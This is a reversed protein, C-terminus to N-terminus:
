DLSILKRNLHQQHGAAQNHALPSLAQATHCRPMASYLSAVTSHMARHGEPAVSAAKAGM